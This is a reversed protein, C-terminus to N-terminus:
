IMERIRDIARVVDETTIDSIEEKGDKPQVICQVTSLPAFREVNWQVTSFLAIVPTNWASAIHLPASDPTIVFAAKQILAVVDHIDRPTFIHLKPNEQYVKEVIQKDTPTSTLIVEFHSESLHKTIAVWKDIEWYRNPQGASVNIVAMNNPLVRKLFEDVYEVSDQSSQLGFTVQKSTNNLTHLAEVYRMAVQKPPSTANTLHAYADIDFVHTGPKNFGITKKASIITALWKSETSYEDKPDIYLDYKHLRLKTLLVPLTLLSKEYVYFKDVGAISKQLQKNRQSCLVHLESAPYLRKIAVLLPTTLILDGYRGIQVVLIKM